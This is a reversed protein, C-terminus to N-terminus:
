WSPMSAPPWLKLAHGGVVGEGEVVGELDVSGPFVIVEASFASPFFM